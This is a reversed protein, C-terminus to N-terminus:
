GYRGIGSAVAQMTCAVAQGWAHQQEAQEDTKPIISSLGMAVIQLANATDLLAQRAELLENHSLGDEVSTGDARKIDEVIAKITSYEEKIQSFVIAATKEDEVLGSYEEAVAMDAKRLASDTRDILGKFFPWKSYMEQLTSLRKDQPINATEDASLFSKLASGAGFYAPLMTRSQYWAAVLPIARYQDIFPKPASSPDPRKGPRSSAKMKSNFLIPTSQTCYAALHPSSMFDRYVATSKETLFNMVNRFTAPIPTQQGDAASIGDFVASAMKYATHEARVPNGGKNTLEEGQETQRAGPAAFGPPHMGIEQAYNSLGGADHAGSGRAETGGRGHFPLIDVGTDRAVKQLEEAAKYLEWNSAIPGDLRNSDSYGLMVMSQNKRHNRVLGALTPTQLAGKVIDGINRLDPATEVLPVIDLDLHNKSALGVEKLLLLAELLHSVQETNAIIYCPVAEQGFLKMNEAICRLIDLERTTKESYTRDNAEFLCGEREFLTQLFEAKASESLKEYATADEGAQGLLDLLVEHHIASNQRVDIPMGHFGRGNVERILRKIKDTTVVTDQGTPLSNILETLDSICEEPSAYANGAPEDTHSVSLRNQINQKTARLKDTIRRTIEQTQPYQQLQILLRSGEGFKRDIYRDMIEASNHAMVKRIQEATVNNNGDRDGAIWSGIQIIPQSSTTGLIHDLAKDVRRAARQLADASPAIGRNEEEVTPAQKRVGTEQWVRELAEKIAPNTASVSDCGLLLDVADTVAEMLGPKHLNTPHATAILANNTIQEFLEHPKQGQEESKQLLREASLTFENQPKDKAIKTRAEIENGVLLIVDIYRSTHEIFKPKDASDLGNVHKRVASIRTEIPQKGELLLNSIEPQIPIRQLDLHDM